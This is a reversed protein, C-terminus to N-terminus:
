IEVQSLAIQMKIHEVKFDFGNQDQASKLIKYIDAAAPIQMLENLWERHDAEDKIIQMQQPNFTKKLAWKINDMDGVWFKNTRTSNYNEILYEM